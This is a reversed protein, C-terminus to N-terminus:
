LSSYMSLFNYADLYFYVFLFGFLYLIADIIKKFLSLSGDM